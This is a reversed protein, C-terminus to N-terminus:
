SQSTALNMFREQKFQQANALTVGLLVFCTIIIKRSLQKFKM